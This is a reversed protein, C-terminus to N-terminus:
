LIVTLTIPQSANDSPFLLRLVTPSSSQPVSSLSLIGSKREGSQVLEASASDLVTVPRQGKNRIASELYPGLQTYRFALLSVTSEPSELAFVEPCRTVFPQGTSNDVTYRIFLKDEKRLVDSITIAVHESGSISDLSRIPNGHLLIEDAVTVEATERILPMADSLRPHVDQDIAFLTTEISTASVLEYSFRESATWIFLNTSAGEEIPEILVKNAQREIKFSPSGAAAMVVPEALEIVTLHNMATEVRKVTGRDPPQTEIRQVPVALALALVGSMLEKM